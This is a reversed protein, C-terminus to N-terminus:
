KITSRTLKTLAKWMEADDKAALIAKCADPKRFTETLGALVKLYFAGAATPIVVFFVIRTMQGDPAGLRLGKANKGMAMTLGGGEVGRVHPFALGHDVVTPLVAERRLAAEVLKEADDVFGEDEMRKALLRICDEMDKAALDPIMLRQASFRAVGIKRPATRRTRQSVRRPASDTIYLMRACNPCSLLEQGRRVSQVLSIPTKMGCGACNGDAIPVVVLRDRRNLKEYVARVDRPLENAMTKISADLQELHGGGPAVKQEDRILNLEQLQILHNVLKNMKGGFIPAIEEGAAVRRGPSRRVVCIFV